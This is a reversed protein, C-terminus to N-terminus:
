DTARYARMWKRLYERNARQWRRVRERQRERVQENHREREERTLGVLHPHRKGRQDGLAASLELCWSAVTSYGYPRGTRDNIAGEERLENVIERYTAGSRKSRITHARAEDRTM